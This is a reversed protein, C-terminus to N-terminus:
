INASGQKKELIQHIDGNREYDTVQINSPRSRKSSRRNETATGTMSSNTGRIATTQHRRHATAKKSANASAQGGRPRTAEVVNNSTRSNENLRHKLIREQSQISVKQLDDKSEQSQEHASRRSDMNLTVDMSAPNSLYKLNLRMNAKDIPTHPSHSREIMLATNDQSAKKGLVPEPVPVPNPLNFVRSERLLFRDAENKAAKIPSLKRKIKKSM